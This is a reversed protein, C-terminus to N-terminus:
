SDNEEEDDNEDLIEASSDKEASEESSSDEYEIDDSPLVAAIAKGKATSSKNAEDYKKKADAAMEVTIKKYNKMTPYGNPCNAWRHGAYFQRCKFCGRHNALIDKEEETLRPVWDARRGARTGDSSGGTSGSNNTRAKKNSREADLLKKSLARLRAIKKDIGIVKKIWENFVAIENFDANEFQEPIDSLQYEDSIEDVCNSFLLDKMRENDRHKETGRLLNNWYIMENAFDEFTENDKQRRTSIKRKWETAWDRELVLEKLRNMFETINLAALTARNAGIWTIIRHDEFCGFLHKVVKDDALGKQYAKNECAVHFTDLVDITCKGATLTPFHKGNDKVTAMRANYAMKVTVNEDAGWKDFDVHAQFVFPPTVTFSEDDSEDSSDDIISSLEPLPVDEDDFETCLSTEGDVAPLLGCARELQVGTPTEDDLQTTQPDRRPSDTVVTTRNANRPKRAKRVPEIRELTRGRLKLTDMM